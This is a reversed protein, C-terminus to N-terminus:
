SELYVELKEYQKHIFRTIDNAWYIQMYEEDFPCEELSLIMDELIKCYIYASLLAEKAYKLSLKRELKEIMFFEIQKIESPLIKYNQIDSFITTELWKTCDPKTSFLLM